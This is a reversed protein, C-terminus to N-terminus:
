LLAAMPFMELTVVDSLDGSVQRVRMRRDTVALWPDGRTIVRAYDGPQVETAHDAYVSVKFVEIPRASRALLNDAHGQLTGLDDVTSHSEDVEMFPWGLNNLTSDVSDTLLMNEETGNGTVWAAQAMGTADEDTSIGAVGSRPASTDFVWEPGVQTLSPAAATGVQMLWEIYRRDASTRRPQFRIDPADAARQTLQRLQEGYNLLSYAPFTEVHTGTEDPPLVIPLPTGSTQQANDVLARAVGGLSKNTVDLHSAAITTEIILPYVLRHDFYSWLGAAGLTLEGKEWDWTRSWIPGAQKIRGDVEVALFNRAGFTAQRLDYKRVVSSPITVGDISGAANLATTWRMGTPCEQGTLTHTIRGTVTEGILLSTTVV